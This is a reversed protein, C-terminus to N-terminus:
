AVSKIMIEKGGFSLDRDAYNDMRKGLRECIPQFRDAKMRGEPTPLGLYKEEFSARQIELAQRIEDIIASPCKAPNILQGTGKCFMDLTERIKLAQEKSAKFFLLSDDAFLM